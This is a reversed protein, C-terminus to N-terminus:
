VQGRGATAPRGGSREGPLAKRPGDSQQELKEWRVAFGNVYRLDITAPRRGPQQALAPYFRLFRALRRDTEETGLDLKLGNRFGIRWARRPDMGLSALRLGLAEFRPKLALYRSVVEEAAADPGSLRALGRPLRGGEPAFIRGRPNVLRGKGWRALPVQEHVTMQLTDPWIRRVTVWDVWPLAEAARRVRHVDLTFFNGRIERGVAAEIDRRDLHRLEGDIRVVKLPLVRPDALTHVGWAVAGAVVGAVTAAALWRGLRRWPIRRQPQRRGSGNRRRTM